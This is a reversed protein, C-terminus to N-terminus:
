PPPPAYRQLPKRPHKRLPRPYWRRCPCWRTCIRSRRFGACNNYRLTLRYSPYSTLRVFSTYTAPAYRRGGYATGINPQNTPRPIWHRRYHRHHPRAVGDSSKRAAKGATSPRQGLSRMQSEKSRSYRRSKRNYKLYMPRRPIWAIHRRERFLAVHIRGVRYWSDGMRAAYSGGVSTFRFSAVHSKSTRFGSINVYRYPNLIYGRRHYGSSKEGTIVDRGDVSVVTELRQRTRNKVYISYRLGRQGLVYYSGRYRFSPLTRHGSRLSIQVPGLTIGSGGYALYSHASPSSAPITATITLGLALLFIRLGISM